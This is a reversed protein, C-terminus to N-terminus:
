RAYGAVVPVLLGSLEEVERWWSPQAGGDGHAARTMAQAAQQWTGPADPESELAALFAREQKKSSALGVLADEVTSYTPGKGAIPVGKVLALPVAEIPTEAMVGWEALFRRAIPGFNRTALRVAELVERAKYHNGVHRWRAASTYASIINCNVCQVVLSGFDLRGSGGGADDTRFRLQLTMGDGVTVGEAMESGPAVSIMAELATTTRDYECVAKVGPINDLESALTRAAVAAGTGVLYGQGTVAYLEAGSDGQRVHLRAIPNEARPTAKWAFAEIDANVSDVLRGVDDRGLLYSLGPAIPATRSDYSDADDLQHRTTQRHLSGYRQALKTLSAESLALLGAGRSLFVQGNHEELRLDRLDVDVHTRREAEIRDAFWRLADPADEQAEIDALHERVVQTGMSILPTGPSYLLSDALFASGSDMAGTLTSRTVTEGDTSAHMEAMAAVGRRGVPAVTVVPAPAESPETPDDSDDEEEDELAPLLFLDEGITYGNVEAFMRAGADTLPRDHLRCGQDPDRESNLWYRVAGLIPHSNTM